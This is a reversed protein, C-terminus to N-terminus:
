WITTILYECEESFQMAGEFAAPILLTDGKVFDVTEATESAVRGQGSLIFIAKMQSSLLTECGPKQHGKDVKFENADVLRGILRVSLDDASSDFHISELADEVHLQRGQGTKPDIRNWDFVRYTTDSPQQIEAILLGAGIAHCTGSPLFHCEGVRVPVKVLYEQCTGEEIAQAFQEKTTGPKLGKYIAGGPQTDIIYWCETKPQGKGTRKCTELDPHVQVSLVDQADLIKILLPFPTPYDSMGTIAAGYEAIVEDITKGSLPGNLIQSKDEPLDALEWSEGINAKSPLDKAFVERLRQGGWIREKYIPKFKLPYLRM